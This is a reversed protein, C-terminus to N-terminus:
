PREEQRAEARREEILEEVMSVGSPVEGFRAKLRALIHERKELVLYGDEVRAILSDGPQLCLTERISAPIVMRGQPGVRVETESRRRM